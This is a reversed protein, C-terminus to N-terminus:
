DYLISVDCTKIKGSEDRIMMEFNNSEGPELWSSDVAYTWDTDIVTGYRDKCSAKVKVYKINYTGTNTITGTCYTYNGDHKVKVNSIKMYLMCYTDHDMSAGGSNSSNYGSSYNYRSNNSDSKERSGSVALYIGTSAGAIFIMVVLVCLWIIKKKKANAQRDSEMNSPVIVQGTDDNRLKTGCYGCYLAFDDIEKGCKPCQM